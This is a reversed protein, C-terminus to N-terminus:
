NGPPPELGDKKKEGRLYLYGEYPMFVTDTVLSFPLGIISITRVYVDDTFRVWRSEPARGWYENGRWISSLDFATHPYPPPDIHGQARSTISHMSACGSALAAGIALPCLIYRSMRRM